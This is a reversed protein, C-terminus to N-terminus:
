SAPSGMCKGLFMKVYKIDFLVSSEVLNLWM